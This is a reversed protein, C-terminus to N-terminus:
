CSSSGMKRRSARAAAQKGYQKRGSEGSNGEFKRIFPSFKSLCSGFVTPTGPEGVRLVRVDCAWGSDDHGANLAAAQGLLMVNTGTVDDVLNVPTGHYRGRPQFIGKQV